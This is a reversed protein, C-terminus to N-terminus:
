SRFKSIQQMMCMIQRVLFQQEREALNRSKCEEDEEIFSVVLEAEVPGRHRMGLTQFIRGAIITLERILRFNEELEERTLDM